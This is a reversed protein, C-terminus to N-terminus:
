ECESKVFRYNIDAFAVQDKPQLPREEEAELKKGNVFTGNKSNMDAIWYEQGKKQIRAHPRSISPWDLLADAAGEVGGVVVMDHNLIIPPAQGPKECVLMACDCKGSAEENEQAEGMQEQPLEERNKNGAALLAAALIVGFVFALMMPLTVASLYGMRRVFIVAGIVSLGSALFVAEKVWLSGGEKKDKQTEGEEDRHAQEEDPVGGDSPLEESARESKSLLAGVAEMQFGDEVLMRYLGYGLTVGRSDEHDICPLLYETLCRLQERVPKGYGPFYCLCVEGEIRDLYIYEPDLILQDGDLLYKDMQEFIKLFGQYLGKLEQYGLKQYADMVKRRATVDYYFLVNGDAKQLKCPLLGPISNGLIMRLPYAKTDVKEQPRMVLFSHTADQKYSVEM